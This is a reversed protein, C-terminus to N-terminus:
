LCLRLNNVLADSPFMEPDDTFVQLAGARVFHIFVLGEAFTTGLGTLKQKLEHSSMRMRTEIQAIRQIDSDIAGPAASVMTYPNIVVTDRYKSAEQMEQYRKLMEASDKPDMGIPYAGGLINAM